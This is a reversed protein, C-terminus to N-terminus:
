AQATILIRAKFYKGVYPIYSFAHLIRLRNYHPILELRLNHFGAKKITAMCAEPNRPAVIQPFQSLLFGSNKMVELIFEANPTHMYLTGGPKLSNNIGRLIEHWQEDYVHQSLDLAFAVDFVNPNDNCFSDVESCVFRAHEAGLKDRRANAARIFPESFDIGVYSEVRSAVVDLLMGDGCAVDLVQDTQKLDFYKNLRWLREPSHTKYGEVYEEGHLERLERATKM